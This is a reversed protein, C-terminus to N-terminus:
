LSNGRFYRHSASTARAIKAMTTIEIQRVRQGTIKMIQGIEKLTKRNVDLKRWWLVFVERNTLTIKFHIRYQKRLKESLEYNKITRKLDEITKPGVNNLRLLDIETYNNIEEIYEIGLRAFLNLVRVPFDLIYISTKKMTGPFLPLFELKEKKM